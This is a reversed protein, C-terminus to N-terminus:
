AAYDQQLLLRQIIFSLQVTTSKEKPNKQSNVITMFFIQPWIRM